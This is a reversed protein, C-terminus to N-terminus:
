SKNLFAFDMACRRNSTYKNYSVALVFINGFCRISNLKISQKMIYGMQVILSKLPSLRPDSVAAVAHLYTKRVTVAKNEKRFYRDHVAKAMPVIGVKMDKHLIRHVYDHDEGYHPFSPSFGGVRKIAEIPLLWHAAMVFNTEYINKHCDCIFDSVMVKPCCIQFNRDLKDLTANMQLPSLIGYRPNGKHADVLKSITDPFIWADQNLLYTYDYGNDLAYQLGINNAKGFGLNKKSEVLICWEYKEKITKVTEDKSDNDVIICDLPMESRQLSPLCKDLWKMANYTVIIVLVKM